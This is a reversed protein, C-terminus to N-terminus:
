GAQFTKRFGDGSRRTSPNKTKASVVESYFDAAAAFAFCAGSVFFSFTILESDDFLKAAIWRCLVFHHGPFVMRCIESKTPSLKDNAAGAASRACVTAEM